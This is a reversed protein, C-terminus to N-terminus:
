SQNYRKRYLRNVEKEASYQNRMMETTLTANKEAQAKGAVLADTISSILGLAAGVPVGMPGFASGAQAGQMTSNVIYMASSIGDAIQGFTESWSLEGINKLSNAFMDAMETISKLGDSIMSLGDKMDGQGGSSFVKKLGASM